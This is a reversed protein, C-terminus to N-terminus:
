NKTFITKDAEWKEVIARQISETSELEEAYFRIQFQIESGGSWMHVLEVEVGDKSWECNFSLDKLVIMDKLIRFITDETDEIINLAVKIQDIRNKKADAKDAFQGLYKENVYLNM